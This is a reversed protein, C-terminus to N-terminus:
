AVTQISKPTNRTPMRKVATFWDGLNYNGLLGCIKDYDIQNDRVDFCAAQPNSFRFDIHFAWKQNNKRDMLYHLHGRRTYRNWADPDTTTCWTQSVMIGSKNSQFKQGISNGGIARSASFTLPRLITINDDSYTVVYDTGEKLKAIGLIDKNKENKSKVNIDVLQLWTYRNIDGLKQANNNFWAVIDEFKGRLASLAHETDFKKRNAYAILERVMWDLYKKQKTPDLKALLEFWDTAIYEGDNTLKNDAVWDTARMTSTFHEYFKKKATNLSM